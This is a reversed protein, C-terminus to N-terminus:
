ALCVSSDCSPLRREGRLSTKQAALLRFFDNFFTMVVFETCGGLATLSDVCM